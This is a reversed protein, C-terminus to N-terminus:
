CNNRRIEWELCFFMDGIFSVGTLLVSTLLINAFSAGYLGLVIWLVAVIMVLSLILATITKM